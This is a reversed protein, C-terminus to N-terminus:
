EHEQCSVMKETYVLRRGGVPAAVLIEYCVPSLQHCVSIKFVISDLIGAVTAM